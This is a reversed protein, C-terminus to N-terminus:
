QIAKLEEKLAAIVDVEVSDIGKKEAILVSVWDFLHIL